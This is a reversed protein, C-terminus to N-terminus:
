TTLDKTMVGSEKLVTLIVTVKDADVTEVNEELRRQYTLSWGARRAFAGPSLGAACRARTLADRDLRYRTITQPFIAIDMTQQETPNTKQGHFCKRCMAATKDANVVWERSSLKIDSCAPCRRTPVLNDLVALRKSLYKDSKYEAYDEPNSWDCKKLLERAHARRAQETSDLIGRARKFEESM